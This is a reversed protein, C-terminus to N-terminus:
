HIPGQQQRANYLVDTDTAVTGEKTLDIVEKIVVADEDELNGTDARGPLVFIKDPAEEHVLVNEGASVGRAREAPDDGLEFASPKFHLVNIDKPHM